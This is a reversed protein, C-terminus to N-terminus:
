PLAALLQEALAQLELIEANTAESSGRGTFNMWSTFPDGPTASFVDAEFTKLRAELETLRRAEDETLRVTGRDASRGACSFVRASGSRSGTLYVYIEDCVDDPGGEQRWNLVLESTSVAGDIHPVLWFANAAAPNGNNYVSLIFEVAIGALGSIDVAIRTTQGDYTEEWAGLNFVRGDNFQYDIAFTVECGQNHNLCGLEAVFRDGNRVRYPPYQGSIWGNRANDPRAWLAPEDELVTELDPNEMFLISGGSGGGSGTCYVSGAGSRWNAACYNTTFDYAFNGMRHIPNVEIQVALPNAAQPGGGFLMGYPNRLLWEGRYTGPATPATLNVALDITEGPFVTAPLQQGLIAGLPDGGAFVLSYGTTWACAGINQVRWIKRFAAGPAFSM